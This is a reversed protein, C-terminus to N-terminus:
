AEQPAIRFESTAQASVPANNRASALQCAWHTVHDVLAQQAAVGTIVHDIDPFFKTDVRDAIGLRRFADHFQRPYNYTEFGDGAFAMAVHVGRDLLKTLGKAFGQKSTNDVIFGVSAVRAAVGDRGRRLRATLRRLVNVGIRACNRAVGYQRFRLLVRNLHSRFTPYRYADFLLLGSVREDAQAANYSHYAGSCFGFLGFREVGTADGLASMASRIDEVAQAEFGLEAATRASDGLGGLDFRLSPISQRALARALNVNIRHPGIRHVIGSNFLIVGTRAKAVTDFSPEPFCFTGILADEPGFRFSHEIM